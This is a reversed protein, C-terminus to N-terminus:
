RALLVFGARAGHVMWGIERSCLVREPDSRGACQNVQDIFFRLDKVRNNRRMSRAWCKGYRTTAKSRYLLLVFLPLLENREFHLTQPRAYSHASQIGLYGIVLCALAMALASPRAQAASIANCNFRVTADYTGPRVAYYPLAYRPQEHRTM